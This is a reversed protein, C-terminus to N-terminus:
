IEGTERVTGIKAALEDVMKRTDKFRDINLANTVSSLWKDIMTGIDQLSEITLEEYVSGQSLRKKQLSETTSEACVSVKGPNKNEFSKTIGPHALIDRLKKGLEFDLIPLDKTHKEAEAQIYNIRCGLSSRKIKGLAQQVCINYTVGELHSFLARMAARLNRNGYREDSKAFSENADKMFSLYDEWSDTTLCYAAINVDGEKGIEIRLEAM